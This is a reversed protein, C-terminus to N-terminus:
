KKVGCYGNVLESQDLLQNGEIRIFVKPASTNCYISFLQDDPLRAHLQLTDDQRMVKLPKGQKYEFTNWDPMDAIFIQEGLEMEGLHKQIGQYQEETDQIRSVYYNEADKFWQTNLPWAIMLVILFLTPWRLVPKASYLGGLAIALFFHPAYLYLEGLHNKLLLTPGLLLLFGLIAILFVRRYQPSFWLGLGLLTFFALRLVVHVVSWVARNPDWINEYFLTDLYYRVNDFVGDLRLSYADNGGLLPSSLLLRLYWLGLTAMVLWYPWLRKLAVKWSENELLVAIALILLPLSISFEKTRIALFYVAAGLVLCLTQHHSKSRQWLYISLLCLTAGFLDFIAATWIVAGNAVVWTGALVAALFAGKSGIYSRSIWYLLLCNVIHLGLQFFYFWESNLGFLQYMFKIVLAGVPRDNYIAGPWVVALHSYSSFQASYLWDWDDAVFFPNHFAFGYNIFAVLLVIAIPM